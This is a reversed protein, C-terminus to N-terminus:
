WNPKSGGGGGTPFPPPRLDPLLASAAHLRGQDRSSLGPRADLDDLPPMVGVHWVGGLGRGHMQVWALVWPAAGM